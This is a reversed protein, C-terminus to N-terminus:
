RWKSEVINGRAVHWAPVVRDTNPNAQEPGTDESDTISWMDGPGEMGELLRPRRPAEVGAGLKPFSPGGSGSLCGMRTASVGDTEPLKRGPRGIRAVSIICEPGSDDVRDAERNPLVSGVESWRCRPGVSGSLLM